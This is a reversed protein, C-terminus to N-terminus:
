LLMSIEEHIFEPTMQLGSGGLGFIAVTLWKQSTKMNEIKDTNTFFATLM